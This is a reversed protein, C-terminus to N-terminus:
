NPLQRRIEARSIERCLTPLQLPTKAFIARLLETAYRERVASADVNTPAPAPVELDKRRPSPYAAHDIHSQEDTEEAVEPLPLQCFHPESADQCKTLRDAAALTNFFILGTGSDFLAYVSDLLGIYRWNLARQYPESNIHSDTHAPPRHNEPLRDRQCFGEARDAPRHKEVFYNGESITATEEASVSSDRTQAAIYIPAYKLSLGHELERLLFERLAARDSFRVERKTPHVNADVQNPPLELFLFSPMSQCHTFHARCSELTWEKLDKSRIQRGNVFFLMEPTATSSFYGPRTAFWELQRGSDEAAVRFLLDALADGWLQRIRSARDGRAVEFITRDGHRLRFTIQPFTLAFSRVTEIIHNAETQDTRLFKRRAPVSQFLHEVRVATGCSAVVEQISTQVGDDVIIETGLEDKERRTRLTLRAVSAISPLAEGRFGFSRIASLDEFSAIKSTAHRELALLADVRAMGSGDDEVSIFDKGARRFNIRIENAGADIANEVLEKVVAAPREVVEGAAVRNILIEPLRRVPRDV